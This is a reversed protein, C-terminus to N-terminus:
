NIGLRSSSRRPRRRPTRLRCPQQQQQKSGVPFEIECIIVGALAEVQSGSSSNIHKRPLPGNPLWELSATQKLHREKSLPSFLSTLTMTWLVVLITSKSHSLEWPIDKDFFSWNTGQNHTGPSLSMVLSVAAAKSQNFLTTSNENRM